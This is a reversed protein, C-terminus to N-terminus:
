TLKVFRKEVGYYVYMAMYSGSINNHVSAEINIRHTPMWAQLISHLQSLYVLMSATHDESTIDHYFVFGLAKSRDEKRIVNGQFDKVEITIHYTEKQLM